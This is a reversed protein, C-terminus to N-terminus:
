KRFYVNDVFVTPLDGSLVMQALNGRGTLGAFQSLPVEISVWQDTQLVPSNITIEHETDDGGGFGNDAGFDVLKIKFAAPAATPDPTWINMHFHTMESIDVTQTVFEIGVFNLLTYQLTKNNDILIEETRATSFQWGTNWTDVPVNTYTDSYLSIVDGAAATPVPAPTSPPTPGGSGGGSGDTYFYVNDVFVNPLDGSLVMQALNERGVLSSLSSLPVDISVWQETQLEPATVTFAGNSDDGGDFINNPGFDIIEIVFQAPLATPDPTWIDMHLHSMGSIDITQSVFEIGVFNLNKYRLVDNGDIQIEETEATSFQWFTNWRDVPVNTYTNSFLSIVSDPDETPAPAPAQPKVAEGLSEITLSGAVDEGGLKATIVATGADLIKINGAADVSAVSPDSSTLDFYAGAVSTTQDVGSPLNFTVTAGTVNLIDGTEASAFQDLGEYIAGRRDALTGLKEFQVEDIWITYGRSGEPGEAYHLMGQEMTLKSPDPLPIIVQQWNTNIRTGFKTVLYTADEFDQGFGVENLTAPQSAKIWFTLADYGSLDRGGAVKFIGGAYPGEPDGSDPVAFRMAAEGAYVEDMDVSFATVKSDGYAFYDMGGTFGDIFVDGNSPYTAPVLEDLDRECSSTTLVVLAVLLLVVPNKYMLSKM